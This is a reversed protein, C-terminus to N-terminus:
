GSRDTEKALKRWGEALSLLADRSEQSVAKAGMAEADAAHIRYKAARDARSEGDDAM